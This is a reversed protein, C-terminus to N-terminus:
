CERTGLVEIPYASTGEAGRETMALNGRQPREDYVASKSVGIEEAMAKYVARM